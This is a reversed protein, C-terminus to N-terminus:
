FWTAGLGNSTQDRDKYCFWLQYSSCCSQYLHIPLKGCSFNLFFSRLKSQWACQIINGHYLLRFFILHLSDRRQHVRVTIWVPTPIWARHRTSLPKPYFIEANPHSQARNSSLKDYGSARRHPRVVMATTAAMRRSQAMSQGKWWTAIVTALRSNGDKLRQVLLRWSSSM